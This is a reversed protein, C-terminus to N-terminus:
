FPQTQAFENWAKEFDERLLYAWRHGIYKGGPKGCFADCYFPLDEYNLNKKLCFLEVGERFIKARGGVSSFRVSGPRCGHGYEVLRIGKWVETREGYSKCVYNCVYAAAKEVETFIPSVDRRSGFGYGELLETTWFAREENLVPGPFVTYGRKSRGRGGRVGTSRLITCGVRIGLVHLLVHYHPVGRRQPETFKIFAKGYRRRIVGTLLSNWRKSAERPEIAEKFTFCYFGCNDFGFRTVFNKVGIRALAGTKWGPKPPPPTSENSNNGNHCPHPTAAAASDRPQSAYEANWTGKSGTLDGVVTGGPALFSVAPHNGSPDVGRLGAL